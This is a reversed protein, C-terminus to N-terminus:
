QGAGAARWGYDTLWRNEEIGSDASSALRRSGENTRRGFIFAVVQDTGHDDVWRLPGGEYAENTENVRGRVGSNM